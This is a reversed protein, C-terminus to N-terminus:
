GPSRRSAGCCKQSDDAPGTWVIDGLHSEPSDM